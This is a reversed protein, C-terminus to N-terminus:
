LYITINKIIITLMNEYNIIKNNIKEVILYAIELVKKM